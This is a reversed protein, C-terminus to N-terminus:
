RRSRRRPGSGRRPATQEDLIQAVYRESVATGQGALAATVERAAARPGLSALRAREAPDLRALYTEVQRRKTVEAQDGNAAVTPQGPQGDQSPACTPMQVAPEWGTPLEGYAGPWGYSRSPMPGPVPLMGPMGTPSLV